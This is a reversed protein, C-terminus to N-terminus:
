RGTRANMQALVEAAELEAAIHPATLWWECTHEMLLTLSGAFTGTNNVIYLGGNFPMTHPVWQESTSQGSSLTYDIMVLSNNDQGDYITLGASASGTTEYAESYLVCGHGAVLLGTGSTALQRGHGYPIRIFQIM